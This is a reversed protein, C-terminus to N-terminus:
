KGGGDRGTLKRALDPADFGMLGFPASLIVVHLEMILVHVTMLGIFLAVGVIFRTWKWIWDQKM